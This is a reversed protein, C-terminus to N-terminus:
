ELGRGDRHLVCTEKIERIYRRLTRSSIKLLFSAEYEFFYGTRNLLYFLVLENFLKESYKKKKRKIEM